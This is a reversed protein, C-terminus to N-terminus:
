DPMQAVVSSSALVCLRHQYARVVRDHANRWEDREQLAAALESELHDLDFGSITVDHTRGM